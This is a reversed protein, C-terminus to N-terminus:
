RLEGAAYPLAELTQGRRELVDDALREAARAQYWRMVLTQRVPDRHPLTLAVELDQESVRLAKMARAHADFALDYDREVCRRLEEHLDQDTM